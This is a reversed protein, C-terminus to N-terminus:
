KRRAPPPQRTTPCDGAPMTRCAARHRSPPLGKTADRQRQSSGPRRRNRDADRRRRCPPSTSDMFQLVGLTLIVLAVGIFSGAIIWVSASSAAQPPAISTLEDIESSGPEQPENTEVVHRPIPPRPEAAPSRAPPRERIEGSREGALEALSVVQLRDPTWGTTQM